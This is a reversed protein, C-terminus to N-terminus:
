WVDGNNLRFGGSGEGGGSPSEVAAEGGDFAMAMMPVFGDLGLRGKSRNTNRLGKAFGFGCIEEDAELIWFGLTRDGDDAEHTAMHPKFNRATSGCM